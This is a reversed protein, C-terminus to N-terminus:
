TYRKPIPDTLPPAPPATLPPLRPGIPTPARLFPCALAWHQGDARTGAGNRDWPGQAERAASSAPLYATAPDAGRRRRRERRWRSHRRSGTVNLDAAPRGFRVPPRRPAPPARHHCFARDSERVRRSPGEDEPHCPFRPGVVPSPLLAVGGGGTWLFQSHDPLRPRSRPNSVHITSREIYGAVTALVCATGVTGVAANGEIVHGKDGRPPQKEKVIHLGRQNLGGGEM